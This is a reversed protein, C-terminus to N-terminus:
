FPCPELFQRGGAPRECINIIFVRRLGRPDAYRKPFCFNGTALAAPRTERLV